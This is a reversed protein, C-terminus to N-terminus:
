EPITIEIGDILNGTKSDFVLFRNDKTVVGIWGQGFTVARAEAGAPLSLDGPVSPPAPAQLRIVLLVVVALVGVIMTATLATM